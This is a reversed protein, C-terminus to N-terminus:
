KSYLAKIRGWTAALVPVPKLQDLELDVVLQGLNDDYWGPPGIPDGFDFADAFGLFLRTAGAPVHFIQESGGALGDGIFFTQRLAPALELFDDTLADNSFDLRPPAPDGPEDDDLFVGVLFLTLEGHQVGSIGGNARRAPPV